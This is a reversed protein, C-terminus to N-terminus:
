LAFGELNFAENNVGIVVFIYSLSVVISSTTTSHFTFVTDCRHATHPIHILSVRLYKCYVRVICVYVIFTSTVVAAASLIAHLRFRDEWADEANLLLLSNFNSQNMSHVNQQWAM